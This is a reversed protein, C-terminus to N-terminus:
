FCEDAKPRTLGANVKNRDQERKQEPTRSGPERDQWPLATRFVPCLVAWPLAGVSGLAQGEAKQFLFRAIVM